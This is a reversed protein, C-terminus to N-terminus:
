PKRRLDAGKSIQRWISIHEISCRSKAGMASVQRIGQARILGIEICSTLLEYQRNLNQEEIRDEEKLIFM